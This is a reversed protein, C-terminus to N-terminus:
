RGHSVGGLSALALRTDRIAEDLHACASHVQTSLHQLALVYARRADGSWVGGGGAPPLLARADGLRGAVEDLASLQQRLAQEAGGVIGGDM